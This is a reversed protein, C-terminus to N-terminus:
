IILGDQPTEALRKYLVATEPDFATLAKVSFGFTSLAAPVGVISVAGTGVDYDLPTGTVADNALVAYSNGPQIQGTPVSGARTYALPVYITGGPCAGDTRLTMQRDLGTLAQALLRQNSFNVFNVVTITMSFASRQENSISWKIALAIALPSRTLTAVGAVAAYPAPDNTGVAYLLGMAADLQGKVGVNDYDISEVEMPTTSVFSAVRKAKDRVFESSDNNPVIGMGDAAGVSRVYGGAPAPYFLENKPNRVCNCNM